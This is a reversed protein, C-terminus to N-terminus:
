DNSKEVLHEDVRSVILDRVTNAIEDPTSDKYNDFPIEDLVEIRFQCKGHFDLSHKPLANKTGNIVVPLIPLEMKKALSFAGAKFKRMLGDKSRTGEPFFFLSNGMLLSKKCQILMHRVGSKTERKLKVYGNMSMNWGILPIRFVEIKSVWKFPFFLNYAILIDLQSQHNSVIVYTQGKRIKERGKTSISWAPMSWLYVSAWFSSFYHLLALKKDFLVTALWILCAIVFFFVSTVAVFLLFMLGILKNIM